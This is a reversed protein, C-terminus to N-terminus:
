DGGSYLVPNLHTNVVDGTNLGPMWGDIDHQQNKNKLPAVRCGDEIYIITMVRRPEASTNPGARHFTWGYHFSIEGLDFPEDILPLGRDLLAKSIKIESEDSIELNRGVAFKHSTASLALPGMEQSVAQLPIWATVTNDTDVPWYYQDAHWPTFGGSAEKYLAQDHYMRVGKVGMLETALRALRKSFVFEKVIESKTWLNMVQLFARQYTNREELPKTNTNLALVQRTIEDGYHALTEPSFVNKLKIFGQDRFLQIQGSTLTYPADLEQAATLTMPPNYASACKQFHMKSEGM